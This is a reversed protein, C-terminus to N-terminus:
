KSLVMTRQMVNEGATLRYIYMGSSQPQGNDSRGNWQVTHTGADVVGHTLTAIRAGLVNYIDLRVPMSETVTYTINTVPNFPNPYNQDLAISGAVPTMVRGVQIPNNHSDRALGSVQAVEGDGAFRLTLLAGSRRISNVAGLAAMDVMVMNGEQRHFVVIDQASGAYEASLLSGFRGNLVLSLGKLDVPNTGCGLTVTTIGDATTVDTVNLAISEPAPASRPLSNNASLGYNIAFIMLDEFEIAGDVDPLGDVYNTSTPGVDFKVKYYTMGTGGPVGSWYAQSWINLDYLDIAGDGSSEDVSNAVDGLYAKITADSTTSWVFTPAGATEFHRLDAGIIDVQSSGPHLLEFNLKAIYDGTSLNGDVNENLLAADMRVSNSSGLASATAYAVPAFTGDYIGWDVSSYDLVGDTWEVTVESSGFEATTAPVVYLSVAQTGTYGWDDAPNTYGAPLTAPLDWNNNPYIVGNSTVAPDGTVYLDYATAATNHYGSVTAAGDLYSFLTFHKTSFTYTHNVGDYTGDLPRWQETTTNYYMVVTNADFTSAMGLDTLDIEIEVDFSYNALNSIIKFYLDGAVAPDPISPDPNSTTIIGEFSGGGEPLTTFTLKTDNTSNNNCDLNYVLGTQAVKTGNAKVTWPYYEVYESVPVGLLGAPAANLADGISVTASTTTAVVETTGTPDDPGDNSGWWNNTADVTTNMKAVIGYNLVGSLDNNNAIVDSVDPDDYGVYIGTSCGSFDSNYIEAETFTGYYDTVLVGASTSGDGAVGSNNIFTCGDVSGTGGGGFEVGYDLWMGAGKGYYECDEVDADPAAPPTLGLAKGRIHVGIRQINEFICRRVVNGTGDLFVIGRGDYQASKINKIVCDEIVSTGRSQIAMQITQQVDSLDTGDLTVDSLNFSKSAHVYFWGSTTNYGSGTNHDPKIITSGAGAGNITLNKDIVIQGTEFFTGPDVNIVDGSAAAQVAAQITLGDPVYLSMDSLDVIWRGDDLFHGVNPYPTLAANVAKTKSDYFNAYEIWAGESGYANNAPGHFVWDFDGSVLTVDAGAAPNTSYTIEYFTSTAAEEYMEFYMGAVNGSESNEGFTNTGTFVVDNIGATYYKGWSSFGIGGWQNNGTTINELDAGDVDTFFIGAGGNDEATVNKLTIDKAGHIDFGSKGFATLTVNEIVANARTPGAVTVGYYPKSPPWSTYHPISADITMNKLAVNAATVQIFRDTTVASADLIVTAEDAGNLVLSKAISFAGPTYTGAAVEITGGAVIRAIAPAITTYPDIPSGNETGTTSSGDVFARNLVAPTSRQDEIVAGNNAAGLAVLDTYYTANTGALIAIDYYNADSGTGWSNGTITLNANALVWGKTREVTNNSLTGAAANIYAPQRLDTITNGTILLGSIGGAIEMARSVEGDGIAFQGEIVCDQVTTNSAGIYLINHTGTKDTKLIKLDKLTAGATTFSLLNYTHGSCQLITNAAGEGKITIAKNVTGAAATFTYTGTLIVIEDGAATKSIAASITALANAQTLGDKLDDGSTSVYYTTQAMVSGAGLLVFLLAAFMLKFSNRM